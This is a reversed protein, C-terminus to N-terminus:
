RCLKTEFLNQAVVGISILVVYPYFIAASCFSGFGM